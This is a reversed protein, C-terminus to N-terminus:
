SRGSAIEAIMDAIGATPAHLSTLRVLPDPRELAAEIARRVWGSKSTGSQSAAKAIRSHLEEPIVIRLWRGM